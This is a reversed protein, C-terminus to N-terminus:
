CGLEFHVLFFLLDNIDVGGDPTGSGSGNDLDAALSGAEFQVLFYLLDNVDVGGDPVGTGSGNDLDAPCGPTCDHIPSASNRPAPTARFFDVDNNNTDQCGGNHRFSAVTNGLSRAAGHGEFSALPLIGNAGYGLRDM